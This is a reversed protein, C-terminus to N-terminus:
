AKVEIGRLNRLSSRDGLPELWVILGPDISNKLFDEFDLLLTGRKDASVPKLLNVIVQGDVKVEVVELVKNAPGFHKAIANKVLSLREDTSAHCWTAGPTLTEANAHILNSGM